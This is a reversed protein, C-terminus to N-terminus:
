TPWLSSHKPVFAADLYILQATGQTQSL